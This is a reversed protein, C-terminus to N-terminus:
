WECNYPAMAQKTSEMAQKCGMALSAKGAPSAAAQKWSTRMQDFAGKMSKKAEDPIKTSTNLCKEYKEIYEDCEAVGIKDGGGESSAEAKEEKSGGLPNKCALLVGLVTLALFGKEFGALKMM